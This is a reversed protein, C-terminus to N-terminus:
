KLKRNLKLSHITELEIRSYYSKANRGTGPKVKRVLGENLWSRVNSEGFLRYAENQSIEDKILGLKALAIEAGIRGCEIRFDREELITM